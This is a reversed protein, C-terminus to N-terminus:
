IDNGSTQTRENYWNTAIQARIALLEICTPVNTVQLYFTHIVCPAQQLHAADFTPSPSLTCYCVHPKNNRWYVGQLQEELINTLTKNAMTTTKKTM